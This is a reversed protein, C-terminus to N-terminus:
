DCLRAERRSTLTCAQTEGEENQNTFSSPAPPHLLDAAERNSRGATVASHQIEGEETQNTVSSPAPPHRLSVRERCTKEILELWRSQSGDNAFFDLSPIRIIEIGRSRLFEDRRADAEKKWLHQEGDIEVCLAAAPCYFDLVYRGVPVQRRFVVGMQKKRLFSWLKKESISMGTRLRRVRQLNTPDHNLSGKRVHESEGKKPRIGALSTAGGGQGRRM